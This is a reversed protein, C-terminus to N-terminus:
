KAPKLSKMMRELESLREELSENQTKLSQVEADKDDLKQNLAVIAALEVGDFELTTISRDDRGPFFAHKFDQAMPGLNPSNSSSEWNYRWQAIPIKALTNLVAKCDAPQIDKKANRDSLM